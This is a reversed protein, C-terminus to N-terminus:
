ASLVYPVPARTSALPPTELPVVPAEDESLLAETLTLETDGDAEEAAEETEDASSEVVESAADEEVEADGDDADDREAAAAAAGDADGDLAADTLALPTM